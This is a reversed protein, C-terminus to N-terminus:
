HYYFQYPPNQLLNLESDEELILLIRTPNLEEKNSEILLELPIKVKGSIKLALVRSNSAIHFAILWDDHVNWYKISNEIYSKTESENLVDIGEPFDNSQFNTNIIKRYDLQFSEKGIQPLSGKLNNNEFEKIPNSLAREFKRFDTFRWEEIRKSPMGINKLSEKGYDQIGKLYGRSEPFSLLSKKSLTNM